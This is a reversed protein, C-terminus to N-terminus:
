RGWENEAEWSGLIRTGAEMMMMTEEKEEKEAYREAGGNGM